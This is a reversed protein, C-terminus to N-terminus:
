AAERNAAPDASGPAGETAFQEALQRALQEALTGLAQEVLEARLCVGWSFAATAAVVEREVRERATARIYGRLAAESMGSCQTAVEDQVATACHSAVDAGIQHLVHRLRWRLLATPSLAQM